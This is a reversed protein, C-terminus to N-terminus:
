FIWAERKRKIQQGCTEGNLKRKKEKLKTSKLHETVNTQKVNQCMSVAKEQNSNRIIEFFQSFKMKISESCLNELMVLGHMLNPKILKQVLKLDKFLETLLIQTMGEQKSSQKIKGAEKEKM